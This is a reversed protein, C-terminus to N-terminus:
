LAAVFKDFSFFVSEFGLLKISDYKTYIGFKIWNWKEPSPSSSFPCIYSHLAKKAYEYM